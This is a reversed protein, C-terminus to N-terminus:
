QAVHREREPLPVQLRDVTEGNRISRLQRELVKQPDDPDGADDEKAADIDPFRKFCAYVLFDDM